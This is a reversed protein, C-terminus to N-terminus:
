YKSRGSPQAMGRFVVKAGQFRVEFTGQPTDYEWEIANPLRKVHMPDGLIQKVMETPMGVQIRDFATPVAAPGQPGQAPPATQGKGAHYSTMGKQVVQGQEFRVEFYGKGTDYEWEIARGVKKVLLPEGLIQKVGEPSMGLEIQDYSSGPPISGQGPSPVVQAGPTTTDAQTPLSAAHYAVFGKFVVSDSSFRVEFYGAGTDYEWEIYQGVPKVQLPEGLMQRVMDSSMGMQVQDYNRSPGQGYSQQQPPSYGGQGATYGGQGATYGGQGATYGGQGATYGGQGATYGGQGTAYGGQGSPNSPWLSGFRSDSWQGSQQYFLFYVGGGVILLIPILFKLFKMSGGENNSQITQKEAGTSPQAESSVEGAAKVKPKKEPPTTPAASAAASPKEPPPQEPSEPKSIVTETEKDKEAAQEAVVTKDLSEPKKVETVVTTTGTEDSPGSTATTDGSKSGTKREKGPM